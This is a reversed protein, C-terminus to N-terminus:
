CWPCSAARARAAGRARRCPRRRAPRRRRRPRRTHRASRSVPSGPARVRSRRVGCGSGVPDPQADGRRRRAVDDALLGRQDVPEVAAVGFGSNVGGRGNSRPTSRRGVSTSLTSVSACTASMARKPACQHRLAPVASRDPCSARSADVPDRPGADVFDLEAGLEAVDQAVRARVVHAAHQDAAVEARPERGALRRHDRERGVVQLRHARAETAARDRHEVVRGARQRLECPHRAPQRALRGTLATRARVSQGAIAPATSCMAFCGSRSPLASAAARRQSSITAPRPAHLSGSPATRKTLLPRVTNASCTASCAARPGHAANSRGGTRGVGRGSRAHRHAPLASSSRRLGIMHTACPM